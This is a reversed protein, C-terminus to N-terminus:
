SKAAPLLGWEKGNWAESGSGGVAVCDSPSTCSVARLDGSPSRSPTRQMVWRVGNWYELLPLESQATTRWGVAECFTTSTCSVALLSVEAAGVRPTAEITWTTGNWRAAAALGVISNGVVTCTKAATCSVGWLEGVSPILLPKHRYWAGGNWREILSEGSLDGVALCATSTRCAVAEFANEYSDTAANRTTQLQWAAGNWREALTLQYETSYNESWGVATCAKAAVCSVSKLQSLEDIPLKATTTLLWARGDWREALTGASSSGVAMCASASSCSVGNLWSRTAGTPDPTPEITWAVGNWREALTKWTANPGSSGVAVCDTKSVCSIASLQVPSADKFAGPTAM